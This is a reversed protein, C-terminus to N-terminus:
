GNLALIQEEKNAIQSQQTELQTNLAEITSELEGKEDQLNSYDKNKDALNM